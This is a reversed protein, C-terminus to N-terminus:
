GWRERFRVCPPRAGLFGRVGSSANQISTESAKPPRLGSSHCSTIVGSHRSLSSWYRWWYPGNLAGRRMSRISALVADRCKLPSSGLLSMSHGLSSGCSAVNSPTNPMNFDTALFSLYHCASAKAGQCDIHKQPGSTQLLTGGLGLALHSSELRARHRQPRHDPFRYAAREILEALTQVVHGKADGLINVLKGLEALLDANRRFPQAAQLVGGPLHRVYRLLLESHREAPHRPANLFRSLPSSRRSLSQLAQPQRGALKGAHRRVLLEALQGLGHLVRLALTATQAIRHRYKVGLAHGQHVHQRRPRVLNGPKLGLGVLQAHGHAVLQHLVGERELILQALQISNLLPELVPDRALQKGRHRAHNLLEVIRIVRSAPQVRSGAYGRSADLQERGHAHDNGSHELSKPLGKATQRRSDHGHEPPLPRFGQADRPFAPEVKHRVDHPHNVIELVNPAIGLDLAGGNRVRNAIVEVPRFLHGLGFAPRENVLGGLDVLLYLVCDLSDAAVHQGEAHGVFLAGQKVYLDHPRRLLLNASGLRQEVDAPLLELLLLRKLLQFLLAGTLVPYYFLEVQLDLRQALRGLPDGSAVGQQISAHLSLRVHPLGDQLSHVQQVLLTFGNSGLNLHHIREAVFHAPRKRVNDGTGLGQLIREQVHQIRDAPADALDDGVAQDFLHETLHARGTRAAAASPQRRQAAQEAASLSGASPSLGVRDILDVLAAQLHCSDATPVVHQGSIPRHLDRRIVLQGDSPRLYRGDVHSQLPTHVPAAFLPHRLFNGDLLAHRRHPASM